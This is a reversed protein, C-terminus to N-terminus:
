DDERGKIIDEILDMLGDVQITDTNKMRWAAIPKSIVSGLLEGMVLTSVIGTATKCILKITSKDM